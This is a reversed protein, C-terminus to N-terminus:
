ASLSAPRSCLPQSLCSPPRHLTCCCSISDPFSLLGVPGLLLICSAVLRPIPRPLDVFADLADTRPAAWTKKPRHAAARRRRRQRGDPRVTCHERTRGQRPRAVPKLSLDIWFLQVTVVIPPPSHGPFFFCLTPTAPYYTPPHVLALAAFFLPERGPPAFLDPHPSPGPHRPQCIRILQAPPTRVTSCHVFCRM